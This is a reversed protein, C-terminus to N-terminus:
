FNTTSSSSSNNNNNLPLSQDLRSQRAGFRRGGDVISRGRECVLISCCCCCCCGCGCCGCSLLFFSFLSLFVYLLFESSSRFRGVKPSVLPRAGRTLRGRKERGGGGKNDRDIHAHLSKSECITSQAINILKGGNTQRDTQGDTALISHFITCICSTTASSAELQPSRARRFQM